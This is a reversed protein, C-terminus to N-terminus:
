SIRRELCLAYEPKDNDSHVHVTVLTQDSIFAILGCFSIYRTGLIAHIWSCWTMSSCRSQRPMCRAGHKWNPKMSIFLHSKSESGLQHVATMYTKSFWTEAEHRNLICREANVRLTIRYMHELLSLRCKQFKWKSFEALASLVAREVPCRTRTWTGTKSDGSFGSEVRLQWWERSQLNSM